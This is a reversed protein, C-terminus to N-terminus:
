KQRQVVLVWNPPMEGPEFVPFFGAKFGRKQLSERIGEMEVEYPMKRKEKPNASLGYSFGAVKSTGQAGFYFGFVLVGNRQLANAFKLLLDKRLPNITYSLSGFLSVIADFRRDPLYEEAKSAIVHDILGKSQKSRLAPVHHAALGTVECRVGLANLEKRLSALGVGLGPGDELVQLRRHKPGIRRLQGALSKPGKGFFTKLPAGFYADYQRLTRANIWRRIPTWPIPKEYSEM